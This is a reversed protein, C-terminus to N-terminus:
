LGTDSLWEARWKVLGIFGAALRTALLVFFAIFVTLILSLVTSELEMAGALATVHATLLELVRYFWKPLGDVYLLPYLAVMPLSAVASAIIDDRLYRQFYLSSGQGVTYFGETKKIIFERRENDFSVSVIAVACAVLLFAWVDLSRCLAYYEEKESVFNYTPFLGPMWASFASYYVTNVVASAAGFVLSSLTFALSLIGASKLVRLTSGM